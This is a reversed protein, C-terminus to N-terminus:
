CNFLQQEGYLHASAEGFIKYPHVYFRAFDGAFWNLHAM